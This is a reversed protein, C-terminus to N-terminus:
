ACVPSPLARDIRSHMGLCIWSLVTLVTPISGSLATGTPGRLGLRQMPLEEREDLLSPRLRKLLKCRCGWIPPHTPTPPKTVADCKWALILVRDAHALAVGCQSLVSEASVRCQSLVRDAHAGRPACPGAGSLM